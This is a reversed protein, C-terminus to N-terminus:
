YGTNASNTTSNDMASAQANSANSGAPPNQPYGTNNNTAALCVGAAGAMLVVFVMMTNKM